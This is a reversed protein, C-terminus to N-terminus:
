IKKREERVFKVFKIMVGLVLAFYAINAFQEALWEMGLILLFACMILLFMFLLVCKDSFETSKIWNLSKEPWSPVQNIKNQKVKVSPSYSNNVKTVLFIPLSNLSLNLIMVTLFLFIFLYSPTIALSYPGQSSVIGIILYIITVPLFTIINNLIVERLSLSFIRTGLYFIGSWLGFSLIFFIIGFILVKESSKIRVSSRKLTLIINKGLTSALYNRIRLDINPPNWPYFIIRLINDGSKVIDKPAYYYRTIIDKGKNSVRLELKNGNLSVIDTDTNKFDYKIKLVYDSVQSLNIVKTFTSSNVSFIQRTEIIKKYLDPVVLLIFGITLLISFVGGMVLNLRKKNKM